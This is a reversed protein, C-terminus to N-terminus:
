LFTVYLPLSTYRLGSFNFYFICIYNWKQLVYRKLRQKNTGKLFTDIVKNNAFFKVLNKKFNEDGASIYSFTVDVHDSLMNKANKIVNNLREIPFNVLLCKMTEERM